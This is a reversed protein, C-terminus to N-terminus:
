EKNCIIYGLELGGYCECKSRRMTSDSLIGQCFRIDRVVKFHSKPCRVGCLEILRKGGSLIKLRIGEAQCEQAMLSGNEIEQNRFTLPLKM